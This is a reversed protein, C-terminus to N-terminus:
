GGFGMFEMPKSEPNSGACVRTDRTGSIASAQAGAGAYVSAQEDGVHVSSMCYSLVGQSFQLWLTKTSQKENRTNIGALVAYGGLAAAATPNSEVVTYRYQWLETGNPSTQRTFPTGLATQAEDRSTRSVAFNDVADLSFDKGFDARSACAGTISLLAIIACSKIGSHKRRNTSM